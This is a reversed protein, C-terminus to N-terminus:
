EVSFASPYHQHAQTIDITFLNYQISYM